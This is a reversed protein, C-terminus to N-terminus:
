PTRRPAPHWLAASGTCVDPDINPKLASLQKVLPRLFLAWIVRIFKWFICFQSISKLFFISSSYLMIFIIGPLYSVCAPFLLILNLKFAPLTICQPCMFRLCHLLTMLLSDGHLSLPFRNYSRTCHSVMTHWSNDNKHKFSNAQCRESTLCTPWARYPHCKTLGRLSSQSCMQLFVSSIWFLFILTLFRLVTRLSFRSKWDM